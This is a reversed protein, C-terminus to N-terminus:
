WGWGIRVDFIDAVQNYAKLTFGLTLNKNIRYALTYRQYLDSPVARFPSYLNYGLQQSFIFNGLMLEHGLLLGVQHYDKQLNERKITEKAFGDAIAEFGLHLANYRSIQKGISAAFGYIATQANPLSDPSTVTKVSGLVWIQKRFRKNVPPKVFNARDPVIMPKPSYTLGISFTPFNMGKNPQKFGGNSIHNYHLGLQLNTKPTLRYYTNFSVSLLFSLPMSFFLNDPNDIVDFTRSLYSLGFAGRVGYFLRKRAAILPEFYAAVSMASGLVKPNDFNFYSLSFGSQAECYCKEWSKQSILSKNWDLTIGFPNSYSIQAISKSHPIIFGYESRLSISRPNRKPADQAYLRQSLVVTFLVLIFLVSETSGKLSSFLRELHLLLALKQITAINM